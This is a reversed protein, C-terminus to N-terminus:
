HISLDCPYQEQIARVICALEQLAAVELILWHHKNTADTLILTLQSPLMGTAHRHAALEPNLSVFVTM